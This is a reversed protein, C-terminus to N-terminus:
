TPKREQDSSVGAESAPYLGGRNPRANQMDQQANACLQVTVGQINKVYNGGDRIHSASGTTRDGSNLGRGGCSPNFDCRRGSIVVSRAAPERNVSLWVPCVSGRPEISTLPEVEISDSRTKHWPEPAIHSPEVDYM